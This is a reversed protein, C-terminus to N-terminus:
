VDTDIVDDDGINFVEFTIRAANVKGAGTVQSRSRYKKKHRMASQQM